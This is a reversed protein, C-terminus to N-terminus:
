RHTNMVSLVYDLTSSPEFKVIYHVKVLVDKLTGSNHFYLDITFRHYTNELVINQNSPYSNMVEEIIDNFTMTCPNSVVDGVSKYSSLESKLKILSCSDMQHIGVNLQTSYYQLIEETLRFPRNETKMYKFHLEPFESTTNIRFYHGGSFYFLKRFKSLSIHINDINIVKGIQQSVSSLADTKFSAIDISSCITQGNITTTTDQCDDSELSSMTALGSNWEKLHEM